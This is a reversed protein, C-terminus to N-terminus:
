RLRSVFQLIFFIGWKRGISQCLSRRSGSGFFDGPTPDNWRGRDGRIKFFVHQQNGHKGLYQRGFVGHRVMVGVLRRRRQFRPLTPSSFVALEGGLDTPTSTLLTMESSCCTQPVFSHSISFGSENQTAILKRSHQDIAVDLFGDNNYDAWDIGEVVKTNVFGDPMSGIPMITLAQGFQGAQNLHYTVSRGEYNGVTADMLGDGNVDQWVCDIAGDSTSSITQPSGFSMPGQSEFWNLQDTSRSAVLIDDLGDGNVDTLDFSNIPSFALIEIPLSWSQTTVDFDFAFLASTGSNVVIELNEDLDLQAFQIRTPDNVAGWQITQIDSNLDHELRSIRGSSGETVFLLHMDEDITLANVDSLGSFDGFVEYQNTESSVGLVSSDTFVYLSDNSQSWSIFGRIGPQNFVAIPSTLADDQFPSQIVDNGSVFSMTLDVFDLSVYSKCSGEYLVDVNAESEEFRVLSLGSGSSPSTVVFKTQSVTNTVSLITEPRPTAIVDPSPAFGGSTWAYRLLRDNGFDSILLSRENDESVVVIADKPSSLNSTIPNTPGFSNGGLNLSFYITSNQQCIIIFDLLGDGDIDALKHMSVGDLNEFLIQETSFGSPSGLRYSIRDSGYSSYILDKLGDSDLDELVPDASISGAYSSLIEPNLFPSASQSQGSSAILCTALSFFFSLSKNM